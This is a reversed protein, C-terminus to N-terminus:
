DKVNRTACLATLLKSIENYNRLSFAILVASEKVSM